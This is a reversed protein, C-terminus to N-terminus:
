DYSLILITYNPANPKIERIKFAVNGNVGTIVITSSNIIAGSALDCEAICLPRSGQFETGMLVNQQYENRFIVNGTKTTQGTTITASKVDPMKFIASYLNLDSM